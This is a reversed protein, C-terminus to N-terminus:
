ADLEEVRDDLNEFSNLAASLYNKPALRHAEPLERELVEDLCLLSERLLNVSM